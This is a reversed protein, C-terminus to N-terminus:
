IKEIINKTTNNELNFNFMNSLINLSALDLKNLKISINLLKLNLITQNNEIM